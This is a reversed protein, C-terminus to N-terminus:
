NRSVESIDFAWVAVFLCGRGKGIREGLLSLERNGDAAVVRDSKGNGLVKLAPQDSEIGM